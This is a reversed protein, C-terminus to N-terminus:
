INSINVSHCGSSRLSSMGSSYPISEGPYQETDNRKQAENLTETLTEYLGNLKGELRRRSNSVVPKQSDIRLLDDELTTIQSLMENVLDIRDRDIGLLDIEAILCNVDGDLVNIKADMVSLQQLLRQTHSSISRISPSPDQWLDQVINSHGAEPEALSTSWLRDREALSQAPGTSDDSLALSAVYQMMAEQQESFALQSLARRRHFQALQDVRTHEIQTRPDVNCGGLHGCGAEDCFCIPMKLMFLM